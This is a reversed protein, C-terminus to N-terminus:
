MMCKLITLNSPKNDAPADFEGTIVGDKMVLVRNSMGICEDLTDGLLLVSKGADAMDRILSYIEVKAGVDVGRTPHNLLIIDSDSSLMKAFVVKQANGGSLSEAPTKYGPTKIRLREIWNKANAIRKKNSIFGAKSTIHLNSAGINDTLDLIGFIGEANREEPIMTIGNILAKGPNPYKAVKGKVVLNGETQKDDGCVVYCLSEKGSGVVGCFGLIEGKHLKFSVDKFEGFKHLNEVELVIEDDPKRQRALSYYENSSKKGVMAEYLKTEDCSKTEFEGANEADRFVYIRDTIELVEDLHHSVFIVSHGKAALNRMQKYLLQIESDNLVSTPEDLLILAHEHSSSYAKNVARAIEVMQRTAFNLDRVYKEPKVFDLEVDKLCREANKYMTKYDIFGGKTFKKEEGLYINQGVTLNIILSQEQFVMGIGSDNAEKSTRPAFPEGRLVMEGSSAPQVGMIIKLLTSKGAGNEGVLGIIEGEHVTMNVGKLAPNGHFDKAINKVEFLVKDSKM